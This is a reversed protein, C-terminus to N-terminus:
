SRKRGLMAAAERLCAGISAAVAPGTCVITPSPHPMALVAVDPRVSRVTERCAGATRGALVVVGLRPLMGLLRGLWAAGIAIEARSPARDRAAGADLWPVANWLLTEERALGAEQLFRRLNRATPTANDRSVLGVGAVGRGPRELVILVRAALGGDMPDPDPVAHGEARLGDTLGRLGAWAPGALLALRRAVEAPDGLTDKM